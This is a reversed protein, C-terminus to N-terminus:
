RAVSFWTGNTLCFVSAQGECTPDPHPSVQAQHLHTPSPSCHSITRSDASEEQMCVAEPFMHQPELSLLSPTPAAVQGQTTCADETGNNGTVCASM